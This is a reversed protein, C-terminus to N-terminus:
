MFLRGQLTGGAVVVALARAPGTTLVGTCGDLWGKWFLRALGGEEHRPAVCCGSCLRRRTSSSRMGSM